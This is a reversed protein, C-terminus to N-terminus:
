TMGSAMGAGCSGLASLRMGGCQRSRNRAQAEWPVGSTPVPPQGAAEPASTAPTLAAPASTHPTGVTEQPAVASAGQSERRSSCHRVVILARCPQLRRGDDRRSCRLGRLLGPLVAEVGMRWALAAAHRAGPLLLRCRCRCSALLRPTCGPIGLACRVRAAQWSALRRPVHRQVQLLVRLM